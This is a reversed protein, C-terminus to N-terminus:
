DIVFSILIYLPSLFVSEEILHHKSFSVAVHLVIFNSCERVCVFIFEFHVLCRFTLHSVMFSGYSFVPLVSNSM